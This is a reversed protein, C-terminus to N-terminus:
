EEAKISEHGVDDPAVTTENTSYPWLISREVVFMNKRVPQESFISQMIFADSEGIARLESIATERNRTTGSTIGKHPLLKFIRDTRQEGFSGAFYVPFELFGSRPSEKAPHAQNENLGMELVLGKVKIEVKSLAIFLNAFQLIPALKM